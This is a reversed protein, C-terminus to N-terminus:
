TRLSYPLSASLSSPVSSYILFRAPNPAMAPNVTFYPSLSRTVRLARCDPFHLPISFKSLLSSFNLVNTTLRRAGIRSIESLSPSVIKPRKGGFLLLTWHGHDPTSTAAGFFAVLIDLRICDPSSSHYRLSDTRDALHLTRFPWASIDTSTFLTEFAANPGTVADGSTASGILDLYPWSTTTRHTSNPLVHQSTTPAM